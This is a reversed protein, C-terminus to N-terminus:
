VLLITPLTLHTYSVTNICIVIHDNCKHVFHRYSCIHTTVTFISSLSRAALRKADVGVGREARTGPSEYISAWMLDGSLAPLNGICFRANQVVLRRGPAYQMSTHDHRQAPAFAIKRTYIFRDTRVLLEKM